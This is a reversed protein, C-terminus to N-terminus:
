KAGPVTDRPSLAALAERVAHRADLTALVLSVVEDDEHKERSFGELEFVERDFIRLVRPLAGRATDGRLRVWGYPQGALNLPWKRGEALSRADEAITREERALAKLRGLVAEDEPGTSRLELRGEDVTRALSGPGTMHIVRALHAAAAPLRM